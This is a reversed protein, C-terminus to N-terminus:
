RMAAVFGVGPYHSAPRHAARRAPSRRREGPAATVVLLPHLLDRGRRGDRQARRCPAADAPVDRRLDGSRVPHRYDLAAGGWRLFGSQDSRTSSVRAVARASGEYGGGKLGAPLIRRQGTSDLGPANGRGGGEPVSALAKGATKLGSNMVPSTSVIQSNMRSTSDTRTIRAAVGSHRARRRTYPGPLLCAVWSNWSPTVQVCM